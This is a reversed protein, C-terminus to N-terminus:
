YFILNKMRPPAVLLAEQMNRALTPHHGLAKIFMELARLTDPHDEVVLVRLSHPREAKFPRESKSQQKSEM